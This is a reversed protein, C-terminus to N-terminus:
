RLLVLSLSRHVAADKASSAGFTVSSLKVSLSTCVARWVSGLIYLVSYFPPVDNRAVENADTTSLVLTNSFNVENILPLIFDVQLASSM